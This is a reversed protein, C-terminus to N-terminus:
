NRKRILIDADKILSIIVKKELSQKNFFFFNGLPWIHIFFIFIKSPNLIPFSYKWTQIKGTGESVLWDFISFNFFIVDLQNERYKGKSYLSCLVLFWSTKSFSASTDHTHSILNNCKESSPLFSLMTRKVVGLNCVNFWRIEPWKRDYYLFSNNCQTCVWTDLLSELIPKLLPYLLHWKPYWFIVCAIYLLVPLQLWGPFVLTLGVKTGM